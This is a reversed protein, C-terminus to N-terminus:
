HTHNWPTYPIVSAKFLAVNSQKGLRWLSENVMSAVPHTELAMLATRLAPTSMLGPNIDFVQFAWSTEQSARLRKRRKFSEIDGELQKIKRQIDALKSNSRRNATDLKDRYEVLAEERQSVTMYQTTQDFHERLKSEFHQLKSRVTQIEEEKSDLLEQKEEVSLMRQMLDTTELQELEYLNKAAALLLCDRALTQAIHFTHRSFDTSASKEKKKSRISEANGAIRDNLCDYFTRESSSANCRPVVFQIKHSFRRGQFYYNVDAVAITTWQKRVLEQQIGEDVRALCCLHHKPEEPSDDLGRLFVYYCTTDMADVIGFSDQVHESYDTVNTAVFPTADIEVSTSAYHSDMVVTELYDCLYGTAKATDSASRLLAAPSPDPLVVTPRSFRFRDRHGERPRGSASM